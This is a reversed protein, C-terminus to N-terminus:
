TKGRHTRTTPTTAPRLPRRSQALSLKTKTLGIGSWTEGGDTSKFYRREDQPSLTRRTM